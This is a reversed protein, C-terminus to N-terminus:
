EEEGAVTPADSLGRMEFVSDTDVLLVTINDMGGAENAAEILRECCLPLDSRHECLLSLIKEDPLMDHLGDSCLLYLDGPEILEDRLDVEVTESMGLARTIVNKYREAHAIMEPDLDKANAMVEAFWSHDTTVQELEGNRMRYIRSDGVHALHATTEHLHLAVVTTGMGRQNAQQSGEEFIKLNALEIATELRTRERCHDDCGVDEESEKAKSLRFFDIVADVAIQSAVEGAAHGGMGDAVIYLNESLLVGVNDENHDRIRGVDTLAAERSPRRTM